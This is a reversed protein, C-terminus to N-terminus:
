LCIRVRCTNEVMHNAVFSFLCHNLFFFFFFFCDKADQTALAEEAYGSNGGSGFGGFTMSEVGAGTRWTFSVSGEVCLFSRRRVSALILKDWV